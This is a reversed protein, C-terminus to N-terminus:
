EYSLEFEDVWLTSGAGVQGTVKSDEFHGGYHSSTAVITINAPRKNTVPYDIDFEFPTYETINDKGVFEGFGIETSDAAWLKIYINCEDTTLNGPYSGNNINTPKYKYYGKLKTPRAGTYPRGFTVSASPNSMNTKYSGIFLNGAAAEVLTIGTITHMEAAYNKVADNTRVTIPDKKPLPAMTVGTNGTAWYSDSADANAFWSQKPDFLGGGPNDQSWTDFNLNPIEEFSETIFTCVDGEESGYVIKYQYETAFDLQSVKAIYEMTEEVKQAEVTQWDADASKKYKFQVPASPELYSCEGSLIAFKGWVKSVDNSIDYTTVGEPKNPIVLTVDYQNLTKDVSVSINVKGNSDQQVDFNINYRYAAKASEAIVNDIYQQEGGEPTIYLSINLPQGSKVYAEREESSSFPISLDDNGKLIASYSTFMEKFRDSYSVKVISQALTCTVSVTHSKGAEVLLIKEGRYYPKAEFGQTELNKGFSYAEVKYEGGAPVLFSEGQLTTWDNAQKFVVSGQTIKVAIQEIGESVARSNVNKNVEVDSLQIYGEGKDEMDSQCSAVVGTLVLSYFIYKLSKM